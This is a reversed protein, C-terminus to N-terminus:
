VNVTCVLVVRNYMVQGDCFLYPRAARPYQVISAQGPKVQTWDLQGKMPRGRGRPKYNQLM